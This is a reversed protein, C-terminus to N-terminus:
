LFICKLQRDTYGAEKGFQEILDRNAMKRAAAKEVGEEILAEYRDQLYSYRKWDIKHSTAPSQKLFADVTEPDGRGDLANDLKQQLLQVQFLLQRKQEKLAAIKKTSKEKASRIKRANKRMKKHQKKAQKKSGM